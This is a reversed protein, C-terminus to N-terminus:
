ARWHKKINLEFITENRINELIRLTLVHLVIRGTRYPYPVNDTVIFFSCLKWTNLFWRELIYETKPRVFILLRRSVHKGQKALLAVNEHCGSYYIASRLRNTAAKGRRRGLNLGPDLWTPNTTSMTASPCPKESYKPKGQWDENRWNRWLWGWRDDPTPLIPWYHGCYGFDWRVFKFFILIDSKRTLKSLEVHKGPVTILAYFKRLAV